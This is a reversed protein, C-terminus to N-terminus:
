RSRREQCGECECHDAVVQELPERCLFTDLNYIFGHSRVTRVNGWYLRKVSPLYATRSVNAHISVGLGLHHDEIWAIGSSTDRKLTLLPDHDIRPDHLIVHPM